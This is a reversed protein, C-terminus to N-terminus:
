LQLMKVSPQALGPRPWPNDHNKRLKWFFNLSDLESQSFFNVDNKFQFSALAGIENRSSAILQSPNTTLM